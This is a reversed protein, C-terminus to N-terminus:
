LTRHQTLNWISSKFVKKGGLCHLWKMLLEHFSVEQFATRIRKLVRQPNNLATGSLSQCITSIQKTKKTQPLSPGQCFTEQIFHVYSKCLHSHSANRIYCATRRPNLSSQQIGSFTLSSYPSQIVALSLNQQNQLERLSLRVLSAPCYNFFFCCGKPARRPTQGWTCSM